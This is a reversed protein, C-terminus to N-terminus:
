ALVASPDLLRGEAVLRRHADPGISAVARDLLPAVLATRLGSV